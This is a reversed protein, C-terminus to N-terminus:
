RPDRPLRFTSAAEVWLNNADAWRFTMWDLSVAAGVATAELKEGTPFGSDM